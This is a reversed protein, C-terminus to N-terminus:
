PCVTWMSASLRLTSVRASAVCMASTYRSGYNPMTFNPVFASLKRLDDAGHAEAQQGSFMSASLPQMRMRYQEKPQSVVVVDDLDRVLSTDTPNVIGAEASVSGAMAMAMVSLMQKKM